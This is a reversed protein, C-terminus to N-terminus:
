DIFFTGKRCPANKVYYFDDAGFRKAKAKEEPTLTSYETKSAFQCEPRYLRVPPPSTPQETPTTPTVVVRPAETKSVLDFKDGNAVLHVKTNVYGVSTITGTCESTATPPVSCLDVMEGYKPHTYGKLLYGEVNSKKVETTNNAVVIGVTAISVALIVLVAGITIKKNIM